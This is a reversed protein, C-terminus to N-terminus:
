LTGFGDPRRPAHHRPEFYFISQRRANSRRLGGPMRVLKSQDWLTSDAGARCARAFFERQRAEDLHRVDFWGHLSKGASNVVLILPSHESHLNSLITIQEDTSGHDFEVVQYSRHTTANGHCRHSRKGDKNLGTEATMPNAVIFQYQAENDRWHERPATRADWNNLALCLLSQEPYLQDLVEAPELELPELPFLHRGHLMPARVKEDVSPWPPYKWRPAPRSACSAGPAASGATTCYSRRIARKIEPVFDRDRWGRSEVVQLLFTEMRSPSICWRGAVAVRFFWVNREGPSPFESLLQVLKPPFPDLKAM